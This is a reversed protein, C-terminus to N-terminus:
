RHRRIFTLIQEALWDPQEEPVWHGREQAVLGTVDEALERLEEAMRDGFSPAGGIALVPMSLKGKGKGMAKMREGNAPMARIHAFAARMGGPEAFPRVYREIGDDSFSTQRMSHQRFLHALLVHERGSILAEPLDPVALFLPHWMPKGKWTPLGSIGAEILILHEVENPFATAWALAIAAGLDHGVLVARGVGLSTAATRVDALVTDIDYGGLPKDSRGFGRIDPAILRYGAAALAPAVHRWEDSHQPFGHLLVIPFGEGGGHRVDLRTGDEAIVVTEALAMWEANAM